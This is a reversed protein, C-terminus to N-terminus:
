SVIGFLYLRSKIHSLLLQVEAAAEESIHLTGILYVDVNDLIRIKQLRHSAVDRLPIPLSAKWSPITTVNVADALPSVNETSKVKSADMWTSPASHFYEKKAGIAVREAVDYSDVVTGRQMRHCAAFNRTWRQTELTTPKFKHCLLSPQLIVWPSSGYRGLVEVFCQPFVFRLVRIWLPHRIVSPNDRVLYDTV